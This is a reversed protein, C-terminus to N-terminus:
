QVLDGRFAAALISQRLLASDCNEVRSAMQALDETEVLMEKLRRVIEDQEDAPPVPVNLTRVFQFHRSYGRDEFCAGQFFRWLYLASLHRNPRILKIGDAGICFPREVYKFRRSHDGFLIWPRDIPQILTEDNTYGAVSKAGQDIPAWM